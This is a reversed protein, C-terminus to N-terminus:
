KTEKGLLTELDYVQQRLELNKLAYRKAIELIEEAKCKHDSM